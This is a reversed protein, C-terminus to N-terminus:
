RTVVPICSAKAATLASCLRRAESLDDFGMARLRYFTKGGSQAQEIM